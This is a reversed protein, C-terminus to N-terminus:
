ELIKLLDEKNPLQLSCGGGIALSGFIIKEDLLLTPSSYKKFSSSDELDDQCITEFNLGVENLLDIAPQYNPCGKFFILKFKAVAGDNIM